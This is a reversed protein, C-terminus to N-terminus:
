EYIFRGIRLRFNVQQRTITRVTVPTIENEASEYPLIVLKSDHRGIVVARGTETDYYRETSHAVIQELKTLDFGRLSARYQM